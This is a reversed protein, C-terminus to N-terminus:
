KNKIERDYKEKVYSFLTDCMEGEIWYFHPFKVGTPKTLFMSSYAYIPKDNKTVIYCPVGLLDDYVLVELLDLNKEKELYKQWEEFDHKFSSLDRIYSGNTYDKKVEEARLKAINSTPDLILIKISVGREVADGVDKIWHSHGPCFTDLWWLTEGPKLDKFLKDIPLSEEIRALGFKKAQNVSDNKEDIIVSVADIYKKLNGKEFFMEKIIEVPIAIVLFSGLLGLISSIIENNQLQRGILICLIGCLFIVLILLKKSLSLKDDKSDLINSM